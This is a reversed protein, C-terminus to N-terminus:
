SQSYANKLWCMTLWAISFRQSLGSQLPPRLAYAPELQLIAAEAPHPDHEHKLLSPKKDDFEGKLSALIGEKISRKFAEARGPSLFIVAFRTM